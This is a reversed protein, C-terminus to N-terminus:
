LSLSFNLCFFPMIPTERDYSKPRMFLVDVDLHSCTYVSEGAAGAQLTLRAARGEGRRCPRQKSEDRRVYQKRKHM